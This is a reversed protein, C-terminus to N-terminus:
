NSEPAPTTATQNGNENSAKKLKNRVNIVFSAILNRIAVSFVKSEKLALSMEKVNKNIDMKQFYNTFLEDMIKRDKILLMFDDFFKDKFDQSYYFSSVYYGYNSKRNEVLRPM